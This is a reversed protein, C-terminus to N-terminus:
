EVHGTAGLVTVPIQGTVTLTFNAPTVGAGDSTVTGGPQFYLPSSPTVTLTTTVDPPGVASQGDATPLPQDCSTAPFSSAVQLSLSNGAVSACVLRRKAVASKQAYRLTAAVRDRFAVARFEDAGQLRPLAVVALIGLILIVTILEIMTFGAARRM